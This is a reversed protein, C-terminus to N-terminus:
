AGYLCGCFIYALREGALARMMEWPTRGGSVAMIFRGRAAIAARGEAAVIQAAARAVAGADALVKIEM